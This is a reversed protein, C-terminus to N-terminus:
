SVTGSPMSEPLKRLRAKHIPLGQALFRAEFNTIPYSPDDPWDIREWGKARAIVKEMWQFYPLDDTKLRLEGESMLSLRVEELFDDQVLRRAQHARKPWPDPFSVYAISVADRPILFRVTYLNELQLLRVNSLGLRAAKSCVKEVRGVLRETGLFNREPFRAAMALLFAGEGCGFDVELPGSRRFIAETSSRELISEPKWLIQSAEPSLPKPRDLSM